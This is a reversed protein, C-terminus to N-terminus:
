RSCLGEVETHASDTYESPTICKPPTSVNQQFFHFSTNPLLFTISDNLNWGVNMKNYRFSYVHKLLNYNMYKYYM